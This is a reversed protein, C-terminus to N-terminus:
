PIPIDIWCLLVRVDVVDLPIWATFADIMDVDQASFASMHWIVM